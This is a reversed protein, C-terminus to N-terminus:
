VSVWLLLSLISSFFFMAVSIYGYAPYGLSYGVVSNRNEEMWAVIMGVWSVLVILNVIIELTEM